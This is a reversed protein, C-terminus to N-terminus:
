KDKSIDIALYLVGGGRRILLLLVDKKLAKGLELDFAKVSDTKKRNVEKVIDGRHLGGRAAISGDEVSAIFVGSQDKLGFRRAIQPTVKKVVVGLKGASSDKKDSVSAQDEDKDAKTGVKIYLTKRRGDRLVVVKIKQGPITAAVVRPLDRSSKVEKGGFEKIIDGAKIGAEEAPDGPMVSSVLAGASDKLAFSKAIEPTIEQITVGIWGRTVKGKDKLQLVVEKVMNIPIAFGIGQGGAIIATNVGVVEGALNFLPGGSNGPNISADTQLFNDYPGAGIVRGKQSLIGATVTGGLGFPNGIAMVWQGIEMKDSDGLAAVPLAEGAEIKILAIDLNSDRGIIEAKYEKKRDKFFTVIIETANEVVHNNTLIYGEKNIIFGSGLNHRERERQPGNFPRFLDDNFFEEFPSKFGKPMPRRRGPRSKVIQTTSINVVSPMLVKALPAFSPLGKVSYSSGPPGAGERWFNQAASEGTIGLGTTIAFGIFVLVFAAAIITKIGVTQSPDVGTQSPGVGRQSLEVGTQSPGVGSQSPGVGTQSPDDYNRNKM